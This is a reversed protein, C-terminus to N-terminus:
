LLRRGRGRLQRVADRTPFRYYRQTAPDPYRREPWSATGVRGLLRAVQQGAVLKARASIDFASDTGDIPVGFEAFIGGTDLREAVEHVTVTVEREGNLLAWFTPMMGRYEPLKGNHVNLVLPLATRASERFIEPAAVSLLVDVGRASLSALYTDDNITPLPRIPVGHRAAIAELSRAGGMRDAIAAGLYRGVLRALDMPGYFRLMRRFLALRSERFNPLTVIEVLYVSHNAAERIFAEFFRATFFPDSQTVAVVRVTRSAGPAQTRVAQDVGGTRAFAAPM